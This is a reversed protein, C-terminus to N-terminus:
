GPGVPPADPALAARAATGAERIRRLEWARRMLAEQRRLKEEVPLTEWAKRYAEKSAWVRELHAELDAPRAQEPVDAM